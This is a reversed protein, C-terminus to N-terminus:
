EDTILIRPDGPEVDYWGDTNLKKYFDLASEASDIFKMLHRAHKGASIPLVENDKLVKGNNFHADLHAIMERYPVGIEGTHTAEGNVLEPIYKDKVSM